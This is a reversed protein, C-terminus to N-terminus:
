TNRFARGGSSLLAAHPAWSKTPDRVAPHPPGGGGAQFHTDSQPIYASLGVYDIAKFLSQISPLDFEAAAPPRTHQQLDPRRMCPQVAPACGPRECAAARCHGGSLPARDTQRM